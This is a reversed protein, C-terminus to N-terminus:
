GAVHMSRIGGVRGGGGAIYNKGEREKYFAKVSGIFRYGRRPVTEIYKPGSKEDGLARRLTFINQALNSDEVFTDAWVEKLLDDKELVCGANTVLLTLIDAAKPTLAITQGDRTLLRETPNLRYPGFEYCSHPPTHPM